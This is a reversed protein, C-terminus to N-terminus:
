KHVWYKKFPIITLLVTKTIETDPRAFDLIVRIGDKAKTPERYDKRENMNRKLKEIQKEANRFQNIM